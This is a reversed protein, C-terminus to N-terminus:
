SVYLTFGLFQSRMECICLINMHMHDRLKCIAPYKERLFEFSHMNALFSLIRKMVTNDIVTRVTYLLHHLVFNM